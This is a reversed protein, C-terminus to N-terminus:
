RKKRGKAKKSKSGQRRKNQSRQPARKQQKKQSQSSNRRSPQSTQRQPQQATHSRQGKGPSVQKTHYSTTPTQKVDTKPTAPEPQRAEQDSPPPELDGSAADSSYAGLFTQDPHPSTDQVEQTHPPSDFSPSPPSPSQPIPLPPGASAYSQQEYYGSNGQAFSSQPQNHQDPLAQMSAIVADPTSRPQSSPEPQSYAPKPAHAPKESYVPEQPAQDVELKKPKIKLKLTSPGPKVLNWGAKIMAAGVLFMVIFLVSVLIAAGIPNLVGGVGFDFGMEGYKGEVNGTDFNGWDVYINSNVTDTNGNQDEVRLTIRYDGSSDYTHTPDQQSSSEGDGFNWDWHRIDADGPESEDIFNVELENINWSFAATPGQSEEEGEEEPFQERFYDGVGTIMTMAQIFVFFVIIIGVVLLVTGIIPPLKDRDM